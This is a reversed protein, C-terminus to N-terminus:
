TLEEKNLKDKLANLDNVVDDISNIAEEKTKCTIIARWRSEGLDKGVHSKIAIFWEIGRPYSHHDLKANGVIWSGKELERIQEDLKKRQAKLEELTM